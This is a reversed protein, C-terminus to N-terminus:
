FQSVYLYPQYYMQQHYQNYQPYIQNYQPLNSQYSDEEISQGLSPENM